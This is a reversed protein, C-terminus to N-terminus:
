EEVFTGGEEVFLELVAIIRGQYGPGGDKFHRLVGEPIRISILKREVDERQPIAVTRKAKKPLAARIRPKEGGVPASGAHKRRTEPTKPTDRSVMHTETIVPGHAERLSEGMYGPAGSLVDGPILSNPNTVNWTNGAHDSPRTNGVRRIKVTMRRDILTPDILHKVVQIYL